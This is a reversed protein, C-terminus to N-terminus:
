PFREFSSAIPMDFINLIFKGTFGSGVSNLCASRTIQRGDPALKTLSILTFFLDSFFETASTIKTLNTPKKV